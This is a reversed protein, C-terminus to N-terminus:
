SCNDSPKQVSKNAVMIITRQGKSYERRTETERSVTTDVGRGRNM